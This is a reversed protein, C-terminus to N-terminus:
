FASQLKRNFFLFSLKVSDLKSAPLFLTFILGRTNKLRRESFSFQFSFLVSQSYSASSVCGVHVEQIPNRRPSKTM